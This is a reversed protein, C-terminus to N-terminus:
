GAPDEREYVKDFLEAAAFFLMLLLPGLLLGNFGFIQLGGLIAFFILLPHIKLRDRLLIPRIFNDLTAVLIAALALFALAAAPNGALAMTAAVPVWVLATGIMPVFSAVATLCAIVLAGHIGFALCLLFMVSAQFLAVLFYGMFLQRGAEKLKSAFLSTYSMEIPIARLAIGVLHRGDAFFFYLTFVMFVLTLVVGLADKLVLGSLGIITGSKSAIFGTIEGKLDFGSLDIRGDTLRHVFGGLPGSPSLDLIDPHSDLAALISSALDGAQRLLAVGLFIAPVVILLVGGLAFSGSLLTRMWGQRETGDKKLSIKRHLPELLVYILASWLLVTMFPYFLRAVLLFLAIFFALFLMKRVNSGQKMTMEKNNQEGRPPLDHM